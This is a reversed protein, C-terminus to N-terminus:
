FPLAVLLFPKRKVNHYKEFFHTKKPTSLIPKLGEHNFISSTSSLFPPYWGDRTGLLIWGSVVLILYYHCSKYAWCLSQKRLQNSCCLYCNQAGTNQLTFLEYGERDGAKWIISINKWWTQKLRHIELDHIHQWNGKLATHLTASIQQSFSHQWLLCIWAETHQGEATDDHHIPSM